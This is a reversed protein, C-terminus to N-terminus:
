FLFFHSFISYKKKYLSDTINWPLIIDCEGRGTKGRLCMQIEPCKRFIVSFVEM